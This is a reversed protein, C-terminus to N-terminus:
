QGTAEELEEIEAKMRNQIVYVYELNYFDNILRVQINYFSEGSKLNSAEVTGIPLGPPFLESYGSTVITDGLEFEAHKPIAQLTMRDPHNGQWVLSGFYNTGQVSAPIKIERHLLSMVVAYHESTNRVIGIIGRDDIVGQHPSLGHKSGRNVTLTNNNLSISNQIVRATLYVYKQIEDPGLMTDREAVDLYRSQRLARRLRANESQLQRNQRRLDFYNLAGAYREYVNGFFANASSFFIRNHGENYRVILFFSIGELLLFLLIGGYRIFPQLLGRM